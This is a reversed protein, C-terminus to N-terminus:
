RRKQTQLEKKDSNDIKEIAVEGAKDIAKNAVANATNELNQKLPEVKKESTTAAPKKAPAEQKEAVVPQEAVPQEAVPQEEVVTEVVTSDVLTEDAAEQKNGCSFCIAAVAVFLFLKKM